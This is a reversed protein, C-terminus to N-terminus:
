EIMEDAQALLTLPITFGLANATKLNFVLKAAPTQYFFRLNEQWHESFIDFLFTANLALPRISYNVQIISFGSIDERSKSWSRKQPSVTMHPERWLPILEQWKM